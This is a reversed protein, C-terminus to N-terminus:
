KLSFVFFFNEVVTLQKLKIRVSDVQSSTLSWLWFTRCPQGWLFKIKRDTTTRVLQLDSPEGLIRGTQSLWLPSQKAWESVLRVSPSVPYRQPLKLRPRVRAVGSMAQWPAEETWPINELCSYPPRPQREQNSWLTWGQTGANAVPLESWQALSEVLIYDPGTLGQTRPQADWVLSKPSHSLEDLHTVRIGRERCQTPLEMGSHPCLGFIQIKNDCFVCM